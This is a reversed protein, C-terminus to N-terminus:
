DAGKAITSFCAATVRYRRPKQTGAWRACLKPKPPMCGRDVEYNRRTGMSPALASGSPLGTITKIKRGDPFAAYEHAIGTDWWVQGRIADNGLGGVIPAEAIHYTRTNFRNLWKRM